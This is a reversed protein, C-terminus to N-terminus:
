CTRAHTGSVFTTNHHQSLPSPCPSPTDRILINADHNHSSCNNQHVSPITSNLILGVVFKTRLVYVTATAFKEDCSMCRLLARIVHVVSMIFAVITMMITIFIMTECVVCFAGGSAVRQGSADFAVANVSGRWLTGELGNCLLSQSQADWLCTFGQSSKEGDYVTGLVPPGIFYSIKYFINVITM